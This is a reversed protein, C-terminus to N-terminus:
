CSKVVAPQAEEGPGAAVHNVLPPSFDPANIAIEDGPQYKWDRNGFSLKSTGFFHLHVDGPRRHAGVKFHHDELNTLSHCMWQQGSKLPGSDYLLEDGRRVTCQLTIEEFPDSCNLVPGISCTQLKSGALYLYNIREYEHDSWENGLVFGLRRPKGQSDIVYCGAIEPEEGGDLAYAPLELEGRHGRVIHGNGKYFWEPATGRQGAAPRGGDIGMQFMRASDTQPADEAPASHMANRSQMSGTHTLGTGTVLMRYPDPHDVPPLLHPRDGTPGAEWLEQFSRSQADSSDVAESILQSLSVGRGEAVGFAKYVGTLEPDASTVDCVTSSELVGLRRGVEPIVFQVLQM